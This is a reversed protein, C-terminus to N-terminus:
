KVGGQRKMAAYKELGRQVGSVVAQGRGAGPKAVSNGHKRTWAARWRDFLDGGVPGTPPLLALEDAVVARIAQDAGATDEGYQLRWEGVLKQPVCIGRACANWTAYDCTTQHRGVLGDRSPRRIAVARETHPEPKPEVQPEPEPKSHIDHPTTIRPQGALNVMLAPNGGKAGNARSAERRKAERVMRRSILAGTEEDVSCVGRASLETILRAVETPRSRVQKALEKLDPPKGNVLVYGGHKHALCMLEVWLGRAALSCGALDEDGRWNSPYFKFYVDRDNVSM